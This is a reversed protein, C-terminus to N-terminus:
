LHQFAVKDGEVFYYQGEWAQTVLNGKLFVFFYKGRKIWLGSKYVVEKKLLYIPFEAKGKVKKAKEVVQIPICNFLVLVTTIIM